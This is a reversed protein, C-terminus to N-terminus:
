SDRAAGKIQFGGPPQAKGRIKLDVGPVEFDNFSPPNFDDKLRGYSLDQGTTRTMRDKLPIQVPQGNKTMRSALSRVGSNATEDTADTRRHNSVDTKHPFVYGAKYRDGKFDNWSLGSASKAPKVSTATLDEDHSGYRDHVWATGAEAGDRDRRSPRSNQNGRNRRLSSGGEDFGLRGDGEAAPSASRDRLRGYNRDGPESRGNRRSQPFYRDTDGRQRDHHCNNRRDRNRDKTVGEWEIGPVRRDADRLRPQEEGYSDDTSSAEDYLSVDFNMSPRRAAFDGDHDVYGAPPHRLRNQPRRDPNKKYYLSKKAAGKPKKDGSNAQRVSIQVNPYSPYRRADRPTQASLHSADTASLAKLAQAAVAEDLYELNFSSDNVWHVVPDYESFHLNAYVQPDDEKFDTSTVQVNVQEAIPFFDDVDEDYIAPRMSSDVQPNQIMTQETDLEMPQPIDVDGDLDIDFDSQMTLTNDSM